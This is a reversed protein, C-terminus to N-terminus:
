KVSRATDFVFHLDLIVGVSTVTTKPTISTFVDDNAAAAVM